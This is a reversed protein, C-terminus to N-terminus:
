KWIVDGQNIKGNIINELLEYIFDNTKLNKNNKFLKYFYNANQLFNHSDKEKGVNIKNAVDLIKKPLYGDVYENYCDVEFKPNRSAFFDLGTIFLEKPNFKLLDHILFLGMTATLVSKSVERISQTITRLPIIRTYKLRDSGRIGKMCLYKVGKKQWEILPFPSMEKYFQGNIYLVDCRKGYDKVFDDNDILNVSNNSRIITDYGDIFKGLNKNKLNPCAGVFIIKKNRILNDFIM